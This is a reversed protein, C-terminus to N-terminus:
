KRKRSAPKGKSQDSASEIFKYTTAKCSTELANGPRNPNGSPAMDLDSVNVIRPLKAVRDLFLGVSHYSGRVRISVPIEAYFERNVETKPEFLLFELGIDRGCQSVSALLSPIEETEPLARQVTKFSVTVADLEKRLKPLQMMTRRATALKTELEQLDTELETLRQFKPWYSLFGFLGVLLLFTGTCILIRQVISLNGIRDFGPAMRDGLRTQKM